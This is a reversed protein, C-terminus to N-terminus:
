KKQKNQEKIVDALKKQETVYADFQSKSVRGLRWIEESLKKVFEGNNDCLKRSQTINFRPRVCGEVITHYVFEDHKLNGKDDISLQNIKEQQGFTLARIRFKRGWGIIHCDTEALDTEALVEEATNYYEIDDEPLHDVIM